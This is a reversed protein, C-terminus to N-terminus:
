RLWPPIEQSPRQADIVPIALRQGAMLVPTIAIHPNALIIRGYGLPDGYYRHAIQDWREGDTTIHELYLKKM